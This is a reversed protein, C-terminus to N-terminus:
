KYLKHTFNHTIITTTTTLLLLLLLFLLLLLLLLLLLRLRLLDQSEDLLITPVVRREPMPRM